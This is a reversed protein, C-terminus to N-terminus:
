PLLRRRINSVGNRLSLFWFWLVCKCKILNPFTIEYYVVTEEFINSEIINDTFLLSDMATNVVQFWEWGKTTGSGSARERCFGLVCIQDDPCAVEKSCERGQMNLQTKKMQEHLPGSCGDYGTIIAIIILAVSAALVNKRFTNFNM